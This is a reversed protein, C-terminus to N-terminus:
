HVISHACADFGAERVRSNQKQMLENQCRRFFDQGLMFRAHEMNIDSSGAWTPPAGQWAAEETRANVPKYASRARGQLHCPRVILGTPPHM